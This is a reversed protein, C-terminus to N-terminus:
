YWGSLQCYCRKEMDVDPPSWWKALSVRIITGAPIIGKASTYGVYKFHKQTFLGKPYWYNANEFKLDRDCIWFGVSSDPVNSSNVYGSGNGTWKLAGGFLVEPGGKLIICRTKIFSVVDYDKSILKKTNVVVDEVHPLKDPHPTFDIDWVQGVEFETDGPQYGDISSHLRVAQLTKLGIAGVCALAGMHTKSLILIEMM